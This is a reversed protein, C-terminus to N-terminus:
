NWLVNILDVSKKRVRTNTDTTKLVIAKILSQISGLVIETNLAKSFFIDAAEMALLYISINNDELCTKLLITCQGLFQEELLVQKSGTEFTDKMHKM